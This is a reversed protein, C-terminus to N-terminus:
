KTSRIEPPYGRDSSTRLGSSRQITGLLKEALLSTAFLTLDIRCTGALTRQTGTGTRLSIV